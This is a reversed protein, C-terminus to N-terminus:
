QEEEETPPESVVVDNVTIDGSIVLYEALLYPIHHEFLKTYYDNITISMEWELNRILEFLEGRTQTGDDIM